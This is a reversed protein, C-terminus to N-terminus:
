GGAGAWWVEWWGFSHNRWTLVVRCLITDVRKTSFIPITHIKYVNSRNGCFSCIPGPILRHNQFPFPDLKLDPETLTLDAPISFTSCPLNFLLNTPRSVSFPRWFIGKCRACHQTDIVINKKTSPLPFLWSRYLFICTFMNFLAWSIASKTIMFWLADIVECFYMDPIFQEKSQYVHTLFLVYWTYITGQKPLRTDPTNRLM